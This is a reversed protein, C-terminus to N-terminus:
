GDAYFLESGVSRIKIFKRILRHKLFGDLFNLILYWEVLIIPVKCSSRYVNIVCHKIRRLIPFTESLLQLSYVFVNKLSMLEETIMWIYQVPPCAVSSLICRRMRKEHLVTLTRICMCDLCIKCNNKQWPLVPDAFACRREPIRLVGSNIEWGRCWPSGYRRQKKINGGKGYCGGRCSLEVLRGRAGRLVFWYM